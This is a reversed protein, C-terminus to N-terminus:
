GPPPPASGAPQPPTAFPEPLPGAPQAAAPDTEAM